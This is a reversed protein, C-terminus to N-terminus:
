GLRWVARHLNGETPLLCCEAHVLIWGGTSLHDASHLLGQCLADGQRQKVGSGFGWRGTVSPQSALLSSGGQLRTLVSLAAAVAWSWDAAFGETHGTSGRRTNKIKRKIPVSPASGSSKKPPHLQLGLALGTSSLFIDNGDWCLWKQKKGLSIFSKPPLFSRGKM